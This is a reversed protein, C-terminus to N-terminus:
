ISIGIPIGIKSHLTATGISPAPEPGQLILYPCKRASTSAFTFNLSFGTATFGTLTGVILPGSMDTTIFLAYGESRSLTNTTPAGEEASVCSSFQNTQDFSCLAHAGTEGPLNDTNTNVSKALTGIIHVLQPRISGSAYIVTGTATPTDLIGVYFDLSSSARNTNFLLCGVDRNGASTADRTTFVIQTGTISTIECKESSVSGACRNDAVFGRSDGFASGDSERHMFAAQRITTGDYSVYGESFEINASVGAGINIRVWDFIGGNTQFGPTLSATANQTANLDVTACYVSLDSGGYLTVEILSQQVTGSAVWNLKIGNVVFSAFSASIEETGVGDDIRVVKGSEMTRQTNSTAVGDESSCSVTHQNIGDTSGTGFSKPAIPSGDTTARVFRFRAAKPTIDGLAPITITQSGSTAPSLFRTTLAIIAM